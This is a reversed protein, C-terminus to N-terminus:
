VQRTETSFGLPGPRSAEHTHSMSLGRRFHIKKKILSKLFLPMAHVNSLQAVSYQLTYGQEAFNLPSFLFAFSAAFSTCPLDFHLISTAISLM